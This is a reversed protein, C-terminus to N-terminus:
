SPDFISRGLDNGGHLASVRHGGFISQLFGVGNCGLNYMLVPNKPEFGVLRVRSETYGMLGHWAYEYDCGPQRSPSVLPLLDRDIEEIIEAPFGSGAVYTASDDLMDEPGGICTLMAPRDARQFPRTTVYVYPTDGGIVENRIFSLANPERVEEDLFGVMYGVDGDVRHHLLPTIDPGTTNEIVHDVFGNTCMVVRTTEVCYGGADIKAWSDGL